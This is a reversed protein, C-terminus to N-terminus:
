QGSQVAHEYSVLSRDVTGELKIEVQGKETLNLGSFSQKSVFPMASFVTAQQAAVAYSDALGSASFKVVDGTDLSFIFSTFSVRPLVNQQLAEFLESVAVHKDLLGKASKLRDSASVISTITQSDFSSKAQVLATNAEAIQKDLVKQYAFLGGAALISAIFLLTGILPILSVPRPGSFSHSSSSSVSSTIPAKPIFSTQFKPEM